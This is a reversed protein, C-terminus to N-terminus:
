PNSPRRRRRVSERPRLQGPGRRGAARPAIGLTGVWRTLARRLGVLGSALEIMDFWDGGVKIGTAVPLYRAVIDLGPVDPVVPLMSRSLETALNREREFLRANDLAIAAYGAIGEALSQHRQTFRGTEPHGFFFGGLVEGTTPSIVPVALHSHVPLRGEPMGYYPANRRGRRATIEIMSVSPGPPEIGPTSAHESKEGTRRDQRELFPLENTM